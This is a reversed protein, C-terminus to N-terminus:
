NAVRRIYYVAKERCHCRYDTRGLVTIYVPIDKMAELALALCLEKGCTAYARNLNLSM